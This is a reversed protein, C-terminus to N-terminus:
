CYDLNYVVQKWGAPSSLFLTAGGCGGEGRLDLVFDEKGDGNLDGVYEAKCSHLVGQGKTLGELEVTCRTLMGAMWGPEGRLVLAGVSLTTGDESATVRPPTGFRNASKAGARIGPVQEGIILSSACPLAYEYIPFLLDPISHSEFTIRTPRALTPRVIQKDCVVFPRSGDLRVPTRFRSAPKQPELFMGKSRDPDVAIQLEWTTDVAGLLSVLMPDFLALPPTITRDPRGEAAFMRLTDKGAEQFFVWGELRGILRGEGLHKSICEVTCANDLCAEEAPDPPCRITQRGSDPAEAIRAAWFLNLRLALVQGCNESPKEPSMCRVWESSYRRLREWLESKPDARQAGQKTFAARGAFGSVTLEGLTCSWLPAAKHAEAMHCSTGAALEFIAASLEKGSAHAASGWLVVPAQATVVPQGGNEKAFAPHSAVVLALAAICHAASRIVRPQM